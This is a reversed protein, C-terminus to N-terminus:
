RGPQARGDSGGGVRQLNFDDYWLKGFLPCPAEACAERVVRVEVAEGAPPTTFEISAERWENTGAPVPAGAALRRGGAAVVEVFVTAIGKLDETRFFHTLRYRTQPEVLVIQTFQGLAFDNPASFVVRLSRSGGRPSKADLGMQAQPVSKVVWDFPSAGPGGVEAEFGGNIVQGAAVQHGGGSYHRYVELAKRMRGAALLAGTLGKGAAAQSRRDEARMTEWVVLADETRKQSVLYDVLRARAESSDGVAEAVARLDGSFYSWAASFIQAHLRPDIDAARRLEQFAERERGARLLLNGLYWRPLAYNPALELAHKLASEGGEVDGAQGRARGLDSWLRYDHPSLATAREYRALAERLEEPEFSRRAFVGLSYHVQPDDPAFSEAAHLVRSVEELAARVAPDNPRTRAAALVAEVEPPNAALTNGLCWRGVTWAGYLALAAPVVLLARRWLPEVNVFKIQDKSQSSM